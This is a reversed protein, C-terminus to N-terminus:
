KWPLIHRWILLEWHSTPPGELVTGPRILLIWTGKTCETGHRAVITGAAWKGKSRFSKVWYESHHLLSISRKPQNQMAPSALHESISECVMGVGLSILGLLIKKDSFQAVKPSPQHMFFWITKRVRMMADLSLNKQELTKYSSRLSSEQVHHNDLSTNKQPLLYFVRIEGHHYHWKESNLKLHFNLWLM